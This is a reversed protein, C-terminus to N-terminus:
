TPHCPHPPAALKDGAVALRWATHASLLSGFAAPVLGAAPSRASRRFARGPCTLWSRMGLGGVAFALEVFSAAQSPPSDGALSAAIAAGGAGGLLWAGASNLDEVRPDVDEIEPRRGQQLEELQRQSKEEMMKARAGAILAAGAMAGSFENLMSLSQERIENDGDDKKKRKPKPPPSSKKKEAGGENM